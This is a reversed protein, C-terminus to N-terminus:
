KEDPPGDGMAVARPEVSKLSKRHTQKRQQSRERLREKEDAPMYELDRLRTGPNALSHKLLSEFHSAIRLVTEREFLETSYLWDQVFQEGTDRVFVALDFKSRTIPVSFPAMQLGALEKRQRPINQMVFLAQVIPNHSRSREPQLDEVLKDFPIDQHAYAGLAVERVRGTIEEFSPNGSLDTHLALLNIFFGIMQETEGTTRNAIDTGLVIHEQGTYRSLLAKYASLLTMFPTLGHQNSFSKVAVSVEKSFVSVEHAGAFNRVAPRPRDFPLQLLAPTGRLHKRWYKLQERFVEGQLYERQWVAYDAYQLPLDPLPSPKGESYAEYLVGLEHIFIGASWADSVIHHMTLLLVNDTASLKLLAARLLPGKALDFPTLAEQAAIEKAKAEANEETTFDVARLHIHHPDSIVQIPQGDAAAKFTTRQSEHRRVIENLAKELANVNLNGTLRIARPINYLPNNPEIQDLVWLRQQAFSLPLPRNRAVRVM